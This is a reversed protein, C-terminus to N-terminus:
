AIGVEAAENSIPEKLGVILTERAYKRTIQVEGGAVELVENRVKWLTREHAHSAGGCSARSRLAISRWHAARLIVEHTEENM